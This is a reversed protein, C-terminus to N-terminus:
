GYIGGKLQREIRELGWKDACWEVFQDPSDNTDIWAQAQHEDLGLDSADIGYRELAIETVEEIFQEPTM